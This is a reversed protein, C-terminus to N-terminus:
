AAGRREPSMRKQHVDYLLESLEVRRRDLDAKAEAVEREHAERDAALRAQATEIAAAAKQLAELRAKAAKPDTILAILGTVAAFADDSM